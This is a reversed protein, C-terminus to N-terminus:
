CRLAPQEFSWSRLLNIKWARVYNKM